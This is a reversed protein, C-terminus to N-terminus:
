NHYELEPRDDKVDFKRLMHFINSLNRIETALTALVTPKFVGVNCVTVASTVSYFLLLFRLFFATYQALPCDYFLYLWFLFLLFPALLWVQCSWSFTYSFGMRNLRITKSVWQEWTYIGWDVLSTKVHLLKCDNIEIKASKGSVFNDAM